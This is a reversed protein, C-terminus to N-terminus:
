TKQSANRLACFADGLPDHGARILGTLARLTPRTPAKESNALALEQASFGDIRNAGLALAASALVGETPFVAAFENWLDGQDGTLQAIASSPSATKMVEDKPVAPRSIQWSQM